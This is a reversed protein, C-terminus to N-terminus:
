SVEARLPETATTVTVRVWENRLHGEPIRVKLYNGTVALTGDDLTLARHTSGLQSALFRATLQRSIHRIRRGRERVVVGGVKGTMAAAPTRPRDSYPFVHIHTLPSGELYSALADFEDDSEGPFGVII